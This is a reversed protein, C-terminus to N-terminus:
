ARIWDAAREAMMVAADGVRLGQLGHVGRYPDVLPM